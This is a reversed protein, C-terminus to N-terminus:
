RRGLLQAAYWTGQQDRRAAVGVIRYSGRLINARHGASRMWGDWVVSSGDPFGYAVNEGAGVLDCGAMVKGLDSHFLQGAKIMAKVQRVAYRHLCRDAKTAKRDHQARAM